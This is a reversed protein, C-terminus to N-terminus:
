RRAAEPRGCSLVAQNWAPALPAGPPVSVVIAGPVAPLRAGVAAVMVVGSRRHLGGLAALEAPRAAGVVAVLPGAPRRRMADMVRPFRDHDDPTAGALYDLLVTWRATGIAELEFGGTTVFRLRRRDKVVAAAVSAAVELAREFSEPTHAAARTDVVVTAVQEWPLEDQRLMLDGVRATSRWHVRRLDDGVEYERLTFFDLGVPVRSAHQSGLRAEPTASGPVPFLAEIRPHVILRDDGAVVTTVAALGLPDAVSLTIPGVAVVGRRVTPLDYTAEAVEGPTLPPVICRAAARGGDFGDVATTLHRASRGALNTFRLRAQAPSGAEVRGPELSRVVDYTVAQGRVRALALGVAVLAGAALGALEVAGLLRAAVV